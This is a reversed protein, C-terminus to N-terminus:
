LSRIPSFPNNTTVSQRRDNAPFGFAGPDTSEYETAHSGNDTVFMTGQGDDTTGQGNDTLLFFGNEAGNEAYEAVETTFLGNLLVGRFRDM